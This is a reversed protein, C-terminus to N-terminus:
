AASRDVVGRPQRRLRADVVLGRAIERQLGLSWQIQRPLRGANRDISIFPSEPPAYGPATQFPYLPSFNPWM